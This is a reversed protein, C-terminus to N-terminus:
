RKRRRQESLLSSSGSICKSVRQRKKVMDELIATQSGMPREVEKKYDRKQEKIEEPTM